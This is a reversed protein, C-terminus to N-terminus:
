TGEPPNWDVGGGIGCGFFLSDQILNVKVRTALPFGLLLVILYIFKSLVFVARSDKKLYQSRIDARDNSQRTCKVNQNGTHVDRSVSFACTYKM